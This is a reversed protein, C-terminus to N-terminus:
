GDVGKREYALRKLRRVERIAEEVNEAGLEEQLECRLMWNRTWQELNREERLQAIQERYHKNSNELLQIKQLWQRRAEGWAKDELYVDACLSCLRMGDVTTWDGQVLHGHCQDCLETAKEILQGLRSAKEAELEKVRAEASMARRIAYPWGKKSQAIFRTIKDWEGSDHVALHPNQLLTIAIVTSPNVQRNGGEELGRRGDHRFLGPVTSVYQACACCKDDTAHAYWDDGPMQECLKLDKELDRWEETM